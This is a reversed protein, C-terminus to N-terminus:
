VDLIQGLGVVDYLGRFLADLGFVTPLDTLVAILSLEARSGWICGWLGTRIVLFFLLSMHLIFLSQCHVSHIFLLFLVIDDEQICGVVCGRM